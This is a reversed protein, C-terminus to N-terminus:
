ETRKQARQRAKRLADAIGAAEGRPAAPAPGPPVVEKEAPAVRDKAAIAPMSAPAAAAPTQSRAVAPRRTERPKPEAESAAKKRRRMLASLLLTRREFVELLVLVAAAVALWKGIPIQRPQRPLDQWISALEIREKGGTARALRELTATGREAQSPKFEPSYPLCVPSLSVPGHGPVDVTTLTTEGGDLPVELAMTDAGTWRLAATSLKPPHGALGRLTSVKPLGSFPDGKREPDFHLQILNVGERVEQTLLMNHKLPSTSGATWRALSTYFDGVRDWKPVTGAYKGDAEGTYCLVRGTGVRWSAVVPAKYEEDLTISALNANPRLYCLNFGGLVLNDPSPLKQDTLLDLGPTHRIRTPEDVFTNRAVVFTDQAFVRPLEEPKDTFFCRGKGREAFDKCLNADQDTERGLAIVSVTIGAKTVKALLDKYANPNGPLGPEEADAADAFLIIHKTGATAKMVTEAAKALAVYMYIGGGQSEIRLVKSRVADKDTLKGLPAIEHAQTDVAFCAFEDQPGLLDIVQAAGLNALDMKKKGGGVPVSMSGSRDLAVCIALSLKRHENRLEMSVPLIPELPSKYYGGPGYSSRGGTMMLGSGTEKVWAALTEMGVHGIQDAPVNELVVASYRSLEELTWNVQKPRRSRVQLGGEQMLSALGSRQTESLHLLPRPGGVGVLIKAVNNEPIPDKSREKEDAASVELTYGQNGAITGRDRFTLRNLGATVKRKGTSITRDGKKLTFEIEQAAPVQVWANILFSEGTSVVSPADIRAIALDAVNLREQSRYDLGVDRSLALPALAAPDRGTWKGDSLILVRGPTDRPILSLGTELAEGLSSANRGITPSFNGFKDTSDPHHELLVDQGFSVVALRDDSSAHKQVLDIWEKQQAESNAPMSLSRDAVVVVTGNRSPLRLAVGALAYVVLLFALARLTTLLTTPPRFVWLALALPICLLLGAPSVLTMPFALCCACALAFPTIILFVLGAVNRVAPSKTLWLLLAAVLVALALPALLLGLHLPQFTM